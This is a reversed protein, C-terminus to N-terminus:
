TPDSKAPDAEDAEPAAPAPPAAAITQKAPRLSVTSLSSGYVKQILGNVSSGTANLAAIALAAVAALTVGAEVM